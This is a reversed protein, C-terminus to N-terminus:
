EFTGHPKAITERVHAAVLHVRQALFEQEKPTQCGVAAAFEHADTFEAFEHGGNLLGDIGLLRDAIEKDFRSVLNTYKTTYRLPGTISAGGNDLAMFQVHGDQIDTHLNGGSFRDWQGCLADVLFINSLQRALDRQTATAGRITVTAGTPEPADNRLYRAIMDQTNLTNGTEIPYEKPNQSWRKFVVPLASPEREIQKLVTLRNQEKNGKYSTQRLLTKFTALGPGRLSVRVAPQFLEACGLARGLCWANVEGTIYNASNDPILAGVTGQGARQVIAYASTGGGTHLAISYKGEGAALDSEIEKALPAVEESAGGAALDAARIVPAALLCVVLSFLKTTRLLKKM